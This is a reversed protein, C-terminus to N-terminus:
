RSAPPTRVFYLVTVRAAEDDLLYVIQWGHVPLIHLAGGLPKSRAPKPERQFEVLAHAIERKFPFPIQEFEAAATPRVEVEYSTV